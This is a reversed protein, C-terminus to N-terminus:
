GERYSYRHRYRWAPYTVLHWLAALISAGILARLLPVGYVVIDGIGTIIIINTLLWTGLLAAFIAGIIGFPLRWGVISEAVFGVIAAVLLYILFNFSFMWVLHGLKITVGGDALILNLAVM